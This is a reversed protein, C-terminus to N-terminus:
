TKLTVRTEPRGPTQKTPWNDFESATDMANDYVRNPADNSYALQAWYRVTEAAIEDQAILLFAPMNPNLSGENIHRQYHTLTEQLTM